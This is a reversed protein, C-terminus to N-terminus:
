PYSNRFTAARLTPRAADHRLMAPLGVTPRERIMTPSREARGVRCSKRSLYWSVSLERLNLGRYDMKGLGAKEGNVITAFDAAKKGLLEAGLADLAVIDVGAAVTTKVRWTPWTAARPGHDNLVRM